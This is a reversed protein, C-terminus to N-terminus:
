PRSLARLGARRFPRSISRGRRFQRAKPVQETRAGQGATFGDPTINTRNSSGAAAGSMDISTKAAIGDDDNRVIRNSQLWSASVPIRFANGGLATVSAADVSIPENAIQHEGQVDVYFAKLRIRGGFLNAFYAATM